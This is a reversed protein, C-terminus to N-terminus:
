QKKRVKPEIFKALQLIAEYLEKYDEHKVGEIEGKTGLQHRITHASYGTLINFAKGAQTFTLNDGKLIIRAQQMYQILLATQVLTLSTLRDGHERQIRGKINETKELGSIEPSAETSRIWEQVTEVIEPKLLAKQYTRLALNLFRFYKLRSNKFSHEEHYNLYNDIDLLSIHRLKITFFYDFFTDDVNIEEASWVDYWVQERKGNKRDQIAGPIYHDKGSQEILEKMTMKQRKKSLIEDAFQSKGKHNLFMHAMQIYDEYERGENKQMMSEAATIHNLILDYDQHKRM